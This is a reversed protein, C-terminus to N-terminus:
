SATLFRSAQGADPRRCTERVGFWKLRNRQVWDYILDGLFDPVARGAFGLTRWPQPMLRAAALVGAWRLHPEGDKLVMFTDFAEADLGYHRYLAKPLADQIVAFQTQGRPDHDLMWQVSGSCLVCKGDFILLPRADDFAPVGPDDRYSYARGRMRRWETAAFMIALPYFIAIASLSNWAGIQPIRGAAVKRRWPADGIIRCL